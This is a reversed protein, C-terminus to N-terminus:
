LPLIDMLYAPALGFWDQILDEAESLSGGEMLILELERQAEAVQARADRRSLGDRRVLVDEISEM